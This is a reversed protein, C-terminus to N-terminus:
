RGISPLFLWGIGQVEVPGTFTSSGDAEVAELWYYRQGWSFSLADQWTYAHGNLGGVAGILSDTLRSEAASPSGRWIHFGSLGSEGATEWNLRPASGWATQSSFSAITM